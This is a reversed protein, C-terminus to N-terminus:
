AAVADMNDALFKLGDTLSHTAGLQENLRGVFLTAANDFQQTAQTVTGPLKAYTEDIAQKQSLLAQVVRDSTLQGAEALGRMEGVTVGLGDAIAKILAPSAEIVSNFERVRLVGSGLAQTFQLTAGAAAGAEAGSLQMGKAVVSTVDAVQQQSIGLSDANQKVKGYLRATSDLNANADKAVAAVSQMSEKYDAEDATAVKVQNSLNTFADARDIM